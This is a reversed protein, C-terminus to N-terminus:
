VIHALQAIIVEAIRGTAGGSIDTNPHLDDPMWIKTLEKPAAVANATPNWVGSEWEGKTLVTQQTWGLREWCRIIPFDWYDALLDQAQSITEKRANEYHGIFIIKAKPNDNLILDILFNIAGLYTFRNRTDAGATVIDDVARDNHGHDFFYVDRRNEGLHREILRKEYSYDQMEALDSPELTVPRDDGTLLERVTVWNDYIYQMEALTAALSRTVARHFSGDWGYPDSVTKLSDVGARAASGGAAENHITMGLADAVLAPYAYSGGGAPISTGFWVGTKGAWTSGAVTLDAVAQQLETVTEALGTDISNASVTHAVGDYPAAWTIYGYLAKSPVPAPEDVWVSDVGTTHANLSSIFVDDADTFVIMATASGSFTGNVFVADLDAVDYRRYKYGALEVKSGSTRSIYYGDVDVSDPIVHMRSVAKSVESVSTLSARKVTAEGLANPWSIGAMAAGVPVIVSQDVLETNVGSTNQQFYGLYGGAATFWVVVATSTGTFTGSVLIEEGAEVSHMEYTFTGVPQVEGDSYRLYAGEVRDSPTSRKYDALAGKIESVDGILRLQIEALNQEVVAVSVIPEGNEQLWSVTCTVAGEPVAVGYGDYFANTNTQHEVYSHFAGGAGRFVLLAVAAGYFIGSVKLVDGVTVAFEAYAYGANATVVGTDYTIYSGLVPTLVIPNNYSAAATLPTIDAAVENVRLGLAGLASQNATRLWVVPDVGVTSVVSGTYFTAGLNATGDTVFVSAGVFEGAAAMDARRTWAGSATTYLGNQAPDTQARVLVDSASTLTGDITQEGSLTVNGMTALAVAARPLSGTAGISELAATRAEVSAVNDPLEQLNAINGNVDEAWAVIDQPEPQHANSPPNGRWIARPTKVPM